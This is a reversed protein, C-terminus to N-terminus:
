ASMSLSRVRLSAADAFVDRWEEFSGGLEAAMAAIEQPTPIRNGNLASTLNQRSVGQADAVDVLTREGLAIRAADSLSAGAAMLNKVKEM